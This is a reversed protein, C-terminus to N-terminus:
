DKFKAMFDLLLQKALKHDEWNLMKAIETFNKREEVKDFCVLICNPSKDTSKIFWLQNLEYKNHSLLKLQTIFDLNKLRFTYHKQQSDMFKLENNSLKTKVFNVDCVEASIIAKELFAEWIQDFMKILQNDNMKQREESYRDSLLKNPIAWRSKSLRIKTEKEIVINMNNLM